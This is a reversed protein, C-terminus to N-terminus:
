STSVRLAIRTVVGDRSADVGGGFNRLVHDVIACGLPRGRLAEDRFSVVAEDKEGEDEVVFVTQGSGPEARVRICGGDPLGEFAGQILTAILTQLLDADVGVTGLGEATGVDVEVRVGRQSTEFSARLRELVERPEALGIGRTLPAIVPRVLLLLGSAVGALHDVEQANSVVTERDTDDTLFQAYLRTATLVNGLEHCLASLLRM